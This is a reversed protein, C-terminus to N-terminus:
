SGPAVTDHALAALVRTHLAFRLPSRLETPTCLRVDHRPRDGYRFLRFLRFVATAYIRTGCVLRRGGGIAKAAAVDAFRANVHPALADALLVKKVLGLVFLVTGRALREHLGDRMPDVDFQPILENHRIIPGAILHPFFMVFNAYQELTYLPARDHRLDVLYSVQEFTFFSIGLPLILDWPMHTRGFLALFADTFFNAYKFLAILVLNLLIGALIAGAANGRAFYRALLWNGLISGALMPVFRPDWWGYFVFSAILLVRLRARRTRVALYYVALAAPLFVLLFAQSSFLM